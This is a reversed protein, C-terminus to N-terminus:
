DRHDQRQSAQNPQPPFVLHQVIYERLARRQGQLRFDGIRMRGSAGPATITLVVRNAMAGPTPLSLSCDQGASLAVTGEGALQGERTLLRVSVDADTNSRLEEISIEQVAENEDSFELSLETRNAYSIMGADDHLFRLQRLYDRPDVRSDGITADRIYSVHAVNETFLQPEVVVQGNPNRQYIANLGQADTGVLQYRDGFLAGPIADHNARALIDTRSMIFRANEYLLYAEVPRLTRKNTLPAYRGVETFYIDTSPVDAPFRSCIGLDDINNVDLMFPVFGSQNYAVVEGAPISQRAREYLGYYPWFFRHLDRSPSRLFSQSEEGRQYTDFFRVAAFGSYCLVAACAIAGLRPRPKSIDNVSHAVILAFIPLLVVFFRFGFMWDGMVAIYLGISIAALTLTRIWGGTRIAYVAAAGVVLVMPIGLARIFQLVYPEAPRKMMVNPHPVLKYLIKTEIPSPILDRFYWWRWGHYAIFLAALPMVVRRLMERRQRSAALVFAGVLIGAYVFGDIRELILLAGMALAVGNSEFVLSAMLATAILAFPVAELSSCSWVALPGALALMGVATLGGTAGTRTRRLVVCVILLIGVACTLSVVKGVFFVADKPLRATHVGALVATSWLVHLFDSYGELRGEVANYVLGKGNLLNQAYVYPIAEDDVFFYLYNAAHVLFLVTVLIGLFFPFPRRREFLQRAPGSRDPEPASIMASM